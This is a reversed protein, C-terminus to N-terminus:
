IHLGGLLVGVLRRQPGVGLQGLERLSKDVDKIGVKDDLHFTSLPNPIQLTSRFRWVLGNDVIEVLRALKLVM